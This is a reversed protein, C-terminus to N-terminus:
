SLVLGNQLLPLMLIFLLVDNKSILDTFSKIFVVIHSANYLNVCVSWRFIVASLMDSRLLKLQKILTLKMLISSLIPCLEAKTTGVPGNEEESTEKSKKSCTVPPYFVWCLIMFVTNVAVGFLSLSFTRISISDNNYVWCNGRRGCEEQWYICSTDFIVGYLLPGPISGVARWLISQVGLALSRQEEAVARFYIIM